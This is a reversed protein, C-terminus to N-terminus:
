LTTKSWVKIHYRNKISHPFNPSSLDGLRQGYFIVVYCKNEQSRPIEETGLCQYWPLNVRSILKSFKVGPTTQSCSIYPPQTYHKSGKLGPRQISSAPPDRAPFGLWLCCFCFVFFWNYMSLNQLSHWHRHCGSSPTIYLCNHAVGCQHQFDFQPGRSSCGTTIWGQAM